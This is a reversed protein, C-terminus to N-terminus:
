NESVSNFIYRPNNLPEFTSDCRDIILETWDSGTVSKESAVTMRRIWRPSDDPLIHTAKLGDLIVKMTGATINDLDLRRTTHFIVHLRVPLNIRHRGKIQGEIQNQIIAGHKRKWHSYRSGGRRNARNWQLLENLSVHPDDVKITIPFRTAMKEEKRFFLIPHKVTKNEVPKSTMGGAVM